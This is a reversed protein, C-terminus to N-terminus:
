GDRELTLVPCPALPVVRETTSGILFHSLGSNGRTAMVILDMQADHAHETIEHYPAGNAITYTANAEAEGIFAKLRTLTRERLETDMTYLGEIGAEYYGLPIPDVIVHLFEVQSNLQGAVSLATEVAKKSYDSFDVPALIKEFASKTLPQQVTLVPSPCLRVIKEAVSGYIWKKVGTRGHTGIVVLEVDNEKVFELISESAKFARIVQLDSAVGRKEAKEKFAELKEYQEREKEKVMNEYEPIMQTSESYMLNFVVIVHLFTVQSGYQEALFLAHEVAHDSFESFDVPVLINKFNM